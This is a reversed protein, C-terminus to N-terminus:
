NKGFYPEYAQLWRKLLTTVGKSTITAGSIGDVYHKKDSEKQIVEDVKGKVVGISKLRGQDDLIKKGKFNNLFWPMEIEGGLGPTEGHKYFTIGRVTELDKELALFGYLSSWLGKGEIPIAYGMVVDNEVVKYVELLDPETEPDISAPTRDPIEQGNPDIVGEQITETYFAKFAENTTLAMLQDELGLAILINKKRDIARNELKRQELGKAVFTLATSCVVCVVTAFFLTYANGRPV